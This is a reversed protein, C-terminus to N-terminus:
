IARLHSSASQVDEEPLHYEVWKLEESVNFRAGKIAKKLEKTHLHMIYGSYDTLYNVDSGEEIAAQLKEELLEITGLYQQIITSFETYTLM